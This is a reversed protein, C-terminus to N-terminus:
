TSILNIIVYSYLFPYLFISKEFFIKAFFISRLYLSYFLSNLPIIGEFGFVSIDKEFVDKGSRIPYARSRNTVM